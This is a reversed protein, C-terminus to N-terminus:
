WERDLYRRGRRAKMAEVYREALPIAEGCKQTRYLEILARDLAKLEDDSQARVLGAAALEAVLLVCALVIRKHRSVRM